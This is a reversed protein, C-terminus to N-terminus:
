YFDQVFGNHGNGDYRVFLVNGGCATSHVNEVTFRWLGPRAKCLASALQKAHYQVLEDPTAVELYKAIPDRETVKATAPIAVATASVLAGVFAARRTILASDAM